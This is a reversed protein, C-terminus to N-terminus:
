TGHPIEQVSGTEGPRTHREWGWGGGGRGGGLASTMLVLQGSGSTEAAPRTVEPRSRTSRRRAPSSGVTEPRPRTDASTSTSSLFNNPSSWNRPSFFSQVKIQRGVCSTLPLYDLTVIPLSRQGSALLPGDCKCGRGPRPVSLPLQRLSLDTLHSTQIPGLPIEPLEFIALWYLASGGNVTLVVTNNADHYIEVQCAPKFM